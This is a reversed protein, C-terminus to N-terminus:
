EKSFIRKVTKGSASTFTICMNPGDLWRRLTVDVREGKFSESVIAKDDWRLRLTVDDNEPGKGKQKTGDIVLQNEVTAMPSESLIKIKDGSHTVTEKRM